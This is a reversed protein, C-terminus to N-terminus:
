EVNKVLRVSCGSNRFDSGTLNVGGWTFGVRHAHADIQSDWSHSASTSSWYNGDSGVDGVYTGNRYGAAPLFVCGKVQLATWQATTCETTYNATVTNPSGVATFESAAFTGGDPFLIIGKVATGDTNITAKTYRCDAVSNVTAAKDGTRSEFLYQWEAQTLTRWGTGLDGTNAGWDYNAYATAWNVGETTIGSGYKASSEPANDTEWPYYYTNTVPTNINSTAWCFLGIATENAFDGSVSSTEIYDYQNDMFSFTGTSWDVSTNERTYQLNGKAFYVQKTSSVSFKGSIAGEPVAPAAQKTMKVTLIYYQGNSLTTNAKEYAYTDSGVTATLTVTQDAFGPLAVYMESTASAPTVTYTEGAVEIVLPKAAITASGDDKLTFKVIAQQNEFTAEGVTYITGGSISTVEVNEAVAYDCNASIYEITGLQTAYDPSLYKLTLEDGAEITGTLEGELQVSSGNSQAELYGTLDAGKTANYVTVQEGAQWAANLTNGDLSLVRRPGNAQSDAGKSATISMQYTQVKAPEQPDNNEKKCGSFVLTMTALCLASLTFLNKKM